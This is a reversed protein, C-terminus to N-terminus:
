GLVGAEEHKSKVWFVFLVYAEAEETPLGGGFEWGVWAEGWVVRENPRARLGGAKGPRGDLAAPM